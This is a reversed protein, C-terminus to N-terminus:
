HYKREKPNAKTIVITKIKRFEISIARFRLNCNIVKAKNWLQILTISINCKVYIPITEDRLKWLVLFKKERFLNCGEFSILIDSDGQWSGRPRSRRASISTSTVIVMVMQWAAVNIIQCQSIYIEHGPLSPCAMTSLSGTYPFKPSTDPSLNLSKWQQKHM